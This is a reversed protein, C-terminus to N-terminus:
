TLGKRFSYRILLIIGAILPLIHVFSGWKLIFYLFGWILVLVIVIILTSKKM